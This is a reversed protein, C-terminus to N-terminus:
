DRLSRNQIRCQKGGPGAVTPREVQGEPTVYGRFIGWFHKSTEEMLIALDGEEAVDTENGSEDITALTVGPIPKGMSGPKIISNPSNGCVLVVESQGYGDRITIGSTMRQWADLAEEDLPEGASVCDLLAMPPYREIFIEHDNATLQRFATPPACLTEIPYKHLLHLQSPNFAGRNNHIFLTAGCNWAGFVAWGQDSLNWYVKGPKLLLWRKRTTTHALPYSIHTHLVMKPLGTTGSTFYILCDEDATTNISPWEAEAPVKALETEFSLAGCLLNGDVQIAHKVHPCQRKINLIKKVAAEDGIFATARSAIARYEIDKASLLTTCPCLIIGAVWHMAALEPHKRAWYDVVDEAFDFHEPRELVDHESHAM